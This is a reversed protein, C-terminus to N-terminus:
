PCGHGAGIWCPNVVSSRPEVITPHHVWPGQRLRTDRLALGLHQTQDRRMEAVGLDRAAQDDGHPGDLAVHRRQQALEAHGTALLQRLLHDGGAPHGLDGVVRRRSRALAGSRHPVRLAVTEVDGELDRTGSVDVEHEHRAEDRVEREVPGLPPVRVEEMPEARERAQDPEVLPAGAHGVAGARQGIQLRPHTVDRRDHIGSAGLAGDQEPVRLTTRHRDEMRCRVRLPHPSQDDVGAVGPAQPSRVVRPAEPRLLPCPVGRLELLVPRPLGVHSVHARVGVLLEGRPPALPAPGGRARPGCPREDLHVRKDVHAVGETGDLSRREDQVTAVVDVRVDLLPAVEGLVDGARPKDLEFARVVEDRDVGVLDEVRDLVEHARQLGRRGESDDSVVRSARCTSSGISGAQSRPM